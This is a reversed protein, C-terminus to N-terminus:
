HEGGEIQSFDAIKDMTNRIKSLLRLRNVRLSAEECNVTVKDFFDDTPVRLNSLQTMAESYSEDALNRSIKDIVSDLLADLRKEQALEFLDADPLTDYNKGDKKEEIRLINAARKYAILLNAGDDSQIFNKLAQVRALLRVFDDESGKSFIASIFDHQIGDTKLFFRLRDAFFSLLNNLVKDKDGKYGGEKWATSFITLLSLNLNNEIVLRIVGLAARRLAFPDKSGTPKENIAWFGVLTDIKDALALAVSVPNTPCMDSPGKPAYHEAIANAVEDPEGDNLAYYRGMVGQLDAFENVMGTSLDAKALHSASRVMDKDAGSIDAIEIALQEIKRAKDAVTGLQAHFTIDKLEPLRSTLTRLQDQEWFFKADALRARLVRENGNIIAEGADPTQKNAVFIFKPALKGSRTELTFYKQNKRMTTTLVEPPLELFNKDISGMLVVPWEVLGVVEELLKPDKLIVLGEEQCLAESSAQIHSSREAPDILVHGMEMSKKYDVFSNVEVVAHTLFRNAQTHKGAKVPGFKVPLVENDYLCILSKIPRVWRLNNDAWRMSKPWPLNFLATEVVNPLLDRTEQGKKEISVFYFEGKDTKRKEVDELEFGVSDLFGQVAKEPSDTRPGRREGSTDPTQTQLEDIVVALRRPTVFTNCSGFELGLEKIGDSLLRSLEAVARAQMRAPIEESLVELLLEAM